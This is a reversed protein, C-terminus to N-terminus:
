CTFISPASVIELPQNHTAPDDYCKGKRRAHSQKEKPQKGVSNGCSETVYDQREDSKEQHRPCGKGICKERGVTQVNEFDKQQDDGGANIKSYPSFAGPM